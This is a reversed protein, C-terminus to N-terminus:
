NCVMPSETEACSFSARSKSVHDSPIWCVFSPVLILIGKIWPRPGRLAPMLRAVMAADAFRRAAARRRREAHVLLLGVLPLVWLGLLITPNEWYM